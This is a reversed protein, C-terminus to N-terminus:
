LFEQLGARIWQQGDRDHSLFLCGREQRADPVLSPPSRRADDM